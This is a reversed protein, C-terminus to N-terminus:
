DWNGAICKFLLLFLLFVFITAVIYVVQRAQEKGKVKSVGSCCCCVAIFVCYRSSFCDFYLLIIVVFFLCYRSSLSAVYSVYNRM